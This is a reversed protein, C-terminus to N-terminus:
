LVIMDTGCHKNKVFLKHPSRSVIQQVDSQVPHCQVNEEDDAVDAMNAVDSVDGSDSCSEKKQISMLSALSQMDEDSADFVCM